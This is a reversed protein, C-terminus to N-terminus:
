EETPTETQTNEEAKVDDQTIDEQVPEQEQTATKKKGRRSRRTKKKDADKSNDYVNNFDVLEIIAMDANDGQRFNFKIIRTYGGERNAVAPGVVDFLEKTAHKNGLYRFAVRRNNTTNEKSRNILPEAYKRLEKAKAVTTTIRKHLILSAALNSLMAKRHGHKRGLSNLKNGHRM